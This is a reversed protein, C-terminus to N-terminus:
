AGEAAGVGGRSGTRGSLVWAAELEACAVVPGLYSRWRSVCATHEAPSDGAAADSLLVSYYGLVFGHRATAEVCVNSDFGAYLCTHIRRARLAVDLATDQFGDYCPKEVLLDCSRPPTLQAYFEAGWTGVRVPCEAPSQFRALFNPLVTDPSVIQRVYVIPVHYRRCTEIAANVVPVAAHIPEM